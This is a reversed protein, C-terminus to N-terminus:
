NRKVPDFNSVGIVAFMIVALVVGGAAISLLFNKLSSSGGSAEEAAQAVDPVMLAASLVGAALSATMKEKMFHARVEYRNTFTARVLLPELELVLKSTTKWLFPVPKNIHIVQQVSPVNAMAIPFNSAM